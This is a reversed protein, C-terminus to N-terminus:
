ASPEPTTSRTHRPAAPTAAAPQLRHEILTAIRLRLQQLRSDADLRTLRDGAVAMRDHLWLSRDVEGADLAARGDRERRRSDRLRREALALNRCAARYSDLTDQLRQVLRLQLARLQDARLRRRARAAAIPGRHHNFMPLTLSLGLSWRHVGQDWEYGPGLTIDPYQQAIAQQLRSQSAAYRLVAARVDARRILVWTQLQRAAPLATAATAHMGRTDLRIGALATVPVGVASALAQRAHDLALRGDAAAAVAHNWARRAAFVTFPPLQGAKVATAVADRIMRSDRVRSRLLPLRRRAAVLDLWAGRVRADSRWRAHAYDYRAAAADAQAAAIRDGRRGATLLTLAASADITWPSQGDSGHSAYQPTLHLTPNPYARATRVAARAERWRDRAVVLDPHDYRAALVLDRQSWRALPWSRVDVHHQALFHRLGPARLSRRQLARASSAASLPRAQYRTCGTLSIVATCLACAVGLHVTGRRATSANPRPHRAVSRAHIPM